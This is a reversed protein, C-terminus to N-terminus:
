VVATNSGTGWQAGVAVITTCELAAFGLAATFPAKAFCLVRPLWAIPKLFRMFYLADSCHLFAHATHPDRPGVKYMALIWHARVHCRSRQWRPDSDPPVWAKRIHINAFIHIYIYM